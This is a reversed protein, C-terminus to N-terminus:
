NMHLTVDKELSLYYRDGFHLVIRPCNWRLKACLMRPIFSNVKNVHFSMGRKRSIIIAVKKLYDYRKNSPYSEKKLSTVWPDRSLIRFCAKKKLDIFESNVFPMGFFKCSISKCPKALINNSTIIVNEATFYRTKEMSYFHYVCTYVHTHNECLSCIM